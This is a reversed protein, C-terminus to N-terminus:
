EKKGTNKKQYNQFVVVASLSIVIIGFLLYSNPVPSGPLQATGAHAADDGTDFSGESIATSTIAPVDTTLEITPTSYQAPMVIHPNMPTGAIVAAEIVQTSIRTATPPLPIPTNSSTPIPRTPVNVTNTPAPYADATNTQTPSPTSIQTTSTTPTVTNTQTPTATKSPNACIEEFTINTPADGPGWAWGDVFGDEVVYTSSGIGSYEWGDETLHWYSWYDPPSECFCDNAPCGIDEIKCIAAGQSSFSAIIQYGTQELLDYGTIEENDEFEICFTEIEGPNYQILVGARNLSQAYGGSKFIITAVVLIVPLLILILKFRKM